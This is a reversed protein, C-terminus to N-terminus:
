HGASELRGSVPMDLRSKCWKLRYSLANVSRRKPMRLRAKFRCCAKSVSQEVRSISCRSAGYLGGCVLPMTPRNLPRRSPACCLWCTRDPSPRSVVSGSHRAKCGGAQVILRQCCFARARWSFIARVCVPITLWVAINFLPM